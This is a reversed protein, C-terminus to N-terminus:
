RRLEEIVDRAVGLRRMQFFDGGRREAYALAQHFANCRLDLVRPRTTGRRDPRLEIRQDVRAHDVREIGRALGPHLDFEHHAANATKTGTDRAKRLIDPDLADDAAEQFMGADDAEAGAM